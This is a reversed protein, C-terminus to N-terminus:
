FSYPVFASSLIEATTCLRGGVQRCRRAALSHPMPAHKCAGSNPIVRVFVTLEAKVSEPLTVPGPLRTMLALLVPLMAM